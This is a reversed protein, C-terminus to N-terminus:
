EVNVGINKLFKGSCDRIWYPKVEVPYHNGDFIGFVRLKGDLDWVKGYGKRYGNLYKGEFVPFGGNGFIRVKHDHMRGNKYVCRCEFAGNVHYTVGSGEKKDDVYEGEFRLVGKNDYQKVFGNLKGKKYFGEIKKVNPTNQFSEELEYYEIGEGNKLGNEYFGDYLSNGTPGFRKVHGNWRGNGSWKTEIKLQGDKYFEKSYTCIGSSFNGISSLIGQNDYTNINEGELKTNVWTGECRKQSTVKDYSIGSKWELKYDSYVQPYTKGIFIINAGSRDYIQVKYGGQKPGFIGEFYPKGNGYFGKILKHSIDSLSTQNSGSFEEYISDQEKKTNEQSLPFFTLYDNKWYGDIFKNGSKYYFAGPGDLLGDKMRGVFIPTKQNHRTFFRVDGDLLGLKFTGHFCLKFNKDQSFPLKQCCQDKDIIKDTQNAQESPEATASYNPKDNKNYTKAINKKSSNAMFPTIHNEVGTNGNGVRSSIKKISNSKNTIYSNCLPLKWCNSQTQSLFRNSVVKPTMLKIDGYGNGMEDEVDSDEDTKVFYQFGDGDFCGDRISGKWVFENEDCFINQFLESGSQNQRPWNVCIPENPIEIYEEKTLQLISLKGFDTKIKKKQNKEKFDQVSIYGKQINGVFKRDGNDYFLVCNLGEPMGQRNFDGSYYLQGNDYFWSGNTISSSGTITGEFLIFGNKYYLIVNNTDRDGFKEM